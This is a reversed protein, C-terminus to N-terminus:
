KNTNGSYLLQKKTVLLSLNEKRIACSGWPANGVTKRRGGVEGRNTTLKGGTEEGWRCVNMSGRKDTHFRHEM